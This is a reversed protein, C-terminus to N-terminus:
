QRAIIMYNINNVVKVNQSFYTLKDKFHNEWSLSGFM